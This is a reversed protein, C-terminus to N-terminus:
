EEAEKQGRLDAAIEEHNDIAYQHAEKIDSLTLRPYISAIERYSCGEEILTM